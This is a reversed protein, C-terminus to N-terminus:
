RLRGAASAGCRAPEVKADAGGRCIKHQRWRDTSRSAPSRCGVLLDDDQRLGFEGVLGITEGENVTFDIGDVAKVIRAGGFSFYHTQLESVRLLPAM